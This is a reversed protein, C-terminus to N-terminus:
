SERPEGLKWRIRFTEGPRANRGTLRWTRNAVAFTYRPPLPEVAASPYPQYDVWPQGTVRLTDPWGLELEVEDWGSYSSWGIDDIAEKSNWRERFREANMAFNRQVVYAVEATVPGRTGNDFVVQGSYTQNPFFAPHLRAACEPPGEVTMERILAPEGDYTVDGFNLDIPITLPSRDTTRMRDYVTVVRCEEEANTSWTVKIRRGERQPRMGEDRIAEVLPRLLKCRAVIRIARRLLRSAM